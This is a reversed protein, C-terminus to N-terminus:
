QTLNTKYLENFLLKFTGHSQARFTIEPGFAYLKGKGVKAEFAVVGNKLYTEGWAWGSVLPKESAFWALPKLGKIAADPGMRFVPSNSFVVDAEKGMGWNAPISPDFAVKLISGPIYYREGTLNKEEGKANVEVLANTVPLGLHYALATSSGVTVVQGGAEMFKKLEPISKAPTISGLWPRFEEAVEEPKPQRGFGRFEGGGASLAPIGSSIFLIVDYKSALDGKDIDQPYVVKFPFNYQEMMWRVWGSPMSGGYNDFLAIRAPTIKVSGAPKSAISVGKVGYATGAKELITKGKAPIFFSGAPSTATSDKIRYVEIGEKLLDNVATFANNIRADVLYGGKSAPSIVAPPSQIQGYPIREFPGDFGNLIRDFKVGMQFALTWGAADYPRIPPGGPYAFDNPHNQPEFMDLVHPRFAQNAKVVYSGKPYSKGEVTFADTAKHILIGSKLLANMFKVATPFDAQDSPIIFGRPDRLVPNTYVTDFFKQPIVSGGFGANATATSDPRPRAIPPLAAAAKKSAEFGSTVAESFKPYLTWNDKNGREISSRGMKYINYLLVDGNRMAYNLIGYNLSVSYEISRRYPWKQPMVPFPNANNPILRDPVLPITAPTPNGTIETLIGIMNHFYPTTRLGGNWWTSFVSGSLRTYGPKDEVHLRNIMSAAVSEIGTILLPDLVHNFPDRYPPGAVVAGAPSTQHHNYIVQPLWEVYQQLSTNTTEKMNMMFFDRNNDHGIYKQYLRPINMNRKKPDKESMYWSSMLEQGDPNVQALLIIVNDLIKITEPDKRSALQYLTEILQHSGVTENAHLGGDIWIVPKGEAVLARAEEESVEARGLKQSIEKYRDIKKLNEPSSIIMMPQRRGEETPGIDVFKVRDSVGAVKKFYAEAQSFTALNYDDGIDFGFHEKPTPITQAISLSTSFIFLVICLRIRIM